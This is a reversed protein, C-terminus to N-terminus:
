NNKKEPEPVDCCVCRMNDGRATTSIDYTGLVIIHNVPVGYNRKSISQSLPLCMWVCPFCGVTYCSVMSDIAIGCVQFYGSWQRWIEKRVDASLPNEGGGLVDCISSM